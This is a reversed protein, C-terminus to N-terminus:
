NPRGSTPPNTIPTIVGAAQLQAVIAQLKGLMEIMGTIPIVIRCATMARGTPTAPPNPDDVRNVVFEMKLLMNEFSVRWLSDVFTESIEPRDAYTLQTVQQASPHQQSQAM